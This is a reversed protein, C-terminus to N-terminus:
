CLLSTHFFKVVEISINRSSDVLLFDLLLYFSEVDTDTNPLVAQDTQFAKYLFCHMLLQFLLHPIYMYILTAKNQKSALIAPLCFVFYKIIDTKFTIYSLIGSGM